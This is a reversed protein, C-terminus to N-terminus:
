FPIDDGRDDATTERAGSKVPQRAANETPVFASLWVQGREDPLPLADLKISFGEGSKAPFAAGIKLWRTKGNQDKSGSCIDYRM